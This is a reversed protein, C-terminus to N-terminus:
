GQSTDQEPLSVNVQLEEGLCWPLQQMSIWYRVELCFQASLSFSPCLSFVNPSPSPTLSSSVM